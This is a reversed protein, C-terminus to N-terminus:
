RRLRWRRTQWLYRMRRWGRSRLWRRTSRAAKLWLIQFESSVTVDELCDLCYRHVSNCSFFDPHYRSSRRSPVNTVASLWSRLNIISPRQLRRCACRVHRGLTIVLLTSTLSGSLEAVRTDRAEAGGGRLVRVYIPVTSPVWGIGAACLRAALPEPQM